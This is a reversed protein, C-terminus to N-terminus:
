QCNTAGFSRLFADFTLYFCVGLFWCAGFSLRTDLLYSRIFVVLPNFIVLTCGLEETCPQGPGLVPCELTGPLLRVVGGVMSHGVKGRQADRIRCGQLLVPSRSHEMPIADHRLFCGLSSLYSLSPPNCRPVFFSLYSSETLEPVQRYKGVNRAPPAALVHRAM